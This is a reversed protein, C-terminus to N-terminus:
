RHGIHDVGLFPAILVDFDGRRLEPMLHRLVGDDVTHLDKVNFSPFSFAREFSDPFLNLWTDDGMMVITRNHEHLQHVINDESLRDSNFNASFDVFTPMGGTVLAKLRQLTTTPPDAEFVLLRARAPDRDSLEGVISLHESAFDFRLADVFMIVSKSFRGASLAILLTILLAFAPGIHDGAAAADEHTAKTAARGGPTRGVGSM